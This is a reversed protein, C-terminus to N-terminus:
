GSDDGIYIAAAAGVVLGLALATVVRGAPTEPGVYTAVAAPRNRSASAPVNSSGPVNPQSTADADPAANPQRQSQKQPDRRASYAVTFEAGLLFIQTSYYI